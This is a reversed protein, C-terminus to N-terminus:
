FLEPESGSPGTPREPPTEIGSLVKKVEQETRRLKEKCTKILFSARKVKEGLADVDIEESEIEAVIQELEEAAEKYTISKKAAM